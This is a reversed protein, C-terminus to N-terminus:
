NCFVSSAMCFFLSLVCGHTLVGEQTDDATSTQWRFTTVPFVTNEAKNVSAPLVNRRHVEICDEQVAATLTFLQETIM